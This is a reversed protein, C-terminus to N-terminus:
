YEAVEIVEIDKNLWKEATEKFKDNKKSVFFKDQIKKEKNHAKLFTLISSIERATERGSSIVMKENDFYKEIYKQLIPYHTCGLIITDFDLKKCESLENELLKFVANEDTYDENEVFPVFTQCAKNTVIMDEKINHISKSYAQSKATFNTGLVLIKGTNTTQIATRAGPKIVGLIPIDYKKDLYELAAATATNCALVVLKVGKDILFKVAKDTNELIEEQTKDGYPCNKVDGFFYISENPLQRIIEKAVTLGGVGSDFVGIPKNM